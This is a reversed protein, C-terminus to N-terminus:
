LLLQPHLPQSQLTVVFAFALDQFHPVCDRKLAQLRPLSEIEDSVTAESNLHRMEKPKQLAYYSDYKCSGTM